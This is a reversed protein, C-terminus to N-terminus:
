VDSYILNDIRQMFKSAQQNLITVTSLVTDFVAKIEAYVMECTKEPNGWM